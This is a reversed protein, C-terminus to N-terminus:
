SICVKDLPAEAFGRLLISKLALTKTSPTLPFEPDHDSKLLWSCDSQTEFGLADRGKSSDNLQKGRKSKKNTASESTSQQSYDEQGPM